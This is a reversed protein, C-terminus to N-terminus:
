LFCSFVRPFHTPEGVLNDKHHNPNVASRADHRPLVILSLGLDFAKQQLPRPPHRTTAEAFCENVGSARIVSIKSAKIGKM